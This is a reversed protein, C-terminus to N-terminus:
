VSCNKDSLNYQVLSIGKLQRTNIGDRSNMCKM